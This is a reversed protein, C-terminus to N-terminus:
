SNFGKWFQYALYPLALVIALVVVLPLLYLVIHFLFYVALAVLYIVVAALPLAALLLLCGMLDKM